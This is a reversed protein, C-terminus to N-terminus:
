GKTKGPLSRNILPQYILPYCLSTILVGAPARCIDCPLCYFNFLCWVPLLLMNATPMVRYFVMIFVLMMLAVGFDILTSFITSLPLVLRPFFVKSILHANQVLVTSSKTLTHNFINWALLGAYAFVIYPVGDSSLKAVKGFVFTLIGAALLPQLIVWIVGLATQRYRLKVDRSALTILLDRFQWIQLLNLAQWGSTARITLYPKEEPAPFDGSIPTPSHPTTQDVVVPSSKLSNIDM